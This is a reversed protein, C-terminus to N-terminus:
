RLGDLLGAAIPVVGVLVFAPLFCFGVPLVVWVSMRAARQEALSRRQSRLRAAARSIEAAAAAGSDSARVFTRAVGALQQDALWPAWAQEPPAGSRMARTVANIENQLGSGAGAAAAELAPAPAAGAALCSAFLEMVLPLEPWSRAVRSRRRAALAVATAALVPLWLGGGTALLGLLGTAAALLQLGRSRRRGDAPRGRVAAPPSVRRLRAAAGLRVPWSLCALALALGAWGATVTAHRPPGVARDM